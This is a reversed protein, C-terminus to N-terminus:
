PTDPDQKNKQTTPISTRIENIIGPVSNPPYYKKKM